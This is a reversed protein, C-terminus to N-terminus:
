VYVLLEVPSYHHGEVDDGHTRQYPTMGRGLIATSGEVRLILANVNQTETVTASQTGAWLQVDIMCDKFAYRNRGNAMRPGWGPMSPMNQLGSGSGGDVEGTSWWADHFVLLCLTFLM